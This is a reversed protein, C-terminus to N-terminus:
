KSANIKEKKKKERSKKLRYIKRKLDRIEVKLSLIQEKLKQIEHNKETLAGEMSIGMDKAINVLDVIKNAFERIDDHATCIYRYDEGWSTKYPTM